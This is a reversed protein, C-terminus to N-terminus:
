GTGASRSSANSHARNTVINIANSHVQGYLNAMEQEDVVPVVDEADMPVAVEEEDETEEFDDFDTDSNTDSDADSDMDEDESSQDKLEDDERRMPVGEVEQEVFRAVKAQPEDDGNDTPKARVM